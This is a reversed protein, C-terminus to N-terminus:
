PFTVALLAAVFPEAVMATIVRSLKPTDTVSLVGLVSQHGDPFELLQPDSSRRSPRGSAPSSGRPQLLLTASQAFCFVLQALDSTCVSWCGYDSSPYAALLRQMCPTVRPSVVTDRGSPVRAAPLRSPGPGALVRGAGFQNHTVAAAAAAVVCEKADAARANIVRRDRRRVSARRLFDKGQAAAFLHVGDLVVDGAACRSFSM